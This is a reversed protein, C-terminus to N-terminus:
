SRPARTTRRSASSWGSADGMQRHEVDDRGLRDVGGEVLL